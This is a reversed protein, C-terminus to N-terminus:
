QFVAQLLNQTRFDRHCCATRNLGFVAILQKALLRLDPNTIERTWVFTRSKVGIQHPNADGLTNLSQRSVPTSSKCQWLARGLVGGAEAVKLGFGLKGWNPM